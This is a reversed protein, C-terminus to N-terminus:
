KGEHRDVVVAVSAAPAYQGRAQAAKAANDAGAHSSLPPWPPAVVITLAQSVVISVFRRGM